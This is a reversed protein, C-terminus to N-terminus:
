ARDGQRWGDGASCTADNIAGKYGMNASDQWAPGSRRLDDILCPSRSTVALPTEHNVDTRTVVHGGWARNAGHANGVPGVTAERRRKGGRASCGEHRRRGPVVGAPEQVDFKM